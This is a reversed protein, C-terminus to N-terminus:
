IGIQRSPSEHHSIVGSIKHLVGGEGLLSFLLFIKGRGNNLWCHKGGFITVQESSELSTQQLDREKDSVFNHVFIPNQVKLDGHGQGRGIM